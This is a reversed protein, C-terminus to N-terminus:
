HRINIPGVHPRVSLIPKGVEFVFFLDCHDKLSVLNGLHCGTVESTGKKEIPATHAPTLEKVERLM